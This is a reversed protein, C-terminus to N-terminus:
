RVARFYRRGGKLDRSVPRASIQGVLASISDATRVDLVTPGRETGIHRITTVEAM